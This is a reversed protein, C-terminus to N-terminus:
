AQPTKLLVDFGQQREEKTDQSSYSLLNLGPYMDYKVSAIENLRKLSKSIAAILHEHSFSVGMRTYILINDSM